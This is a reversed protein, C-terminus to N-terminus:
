IPGVGGIYGVDSTLAAILAGGVMELDHGLVVVGDLPSLGAILGSADGANGAIVSQWGLVSAIRQLSEAIDGGGVIVLTSRPWLITVVTDDLIETTSAGHGFMRRADDGAESITDSTYLTTGIVTDGDM